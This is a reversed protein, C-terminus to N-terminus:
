FFVLIGWGQLYGSRKEKGIAANKVRLALEMAQELSKPNLIQVEAKVDEKLGNLFQGLLIEESIRDLPAVTEIFNWRYERVTTTQVILLWQEYLSGGSSSRFQRLIFEKLDAWRQILHRKNEWQYWKFADGELVVIVADLREEERWKYFNLYRDVQLIWDDPDSGGFLPM